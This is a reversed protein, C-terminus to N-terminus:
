GDEDKQDKIVDYQKKIREYIGTDKNKLYNTPLSKGKNRTPASTAALDILDTVIGLFVAERLAAKHPMQFTISFTNRSDAFWDGDRDDIACECSYGIDYFLVRYHEGTLFRRLHRAKQSRLSGRHVGMGRLNGVVDRKTYAYAAGDAELVLCIWDKYRGEFYSEYKPRKSKLEELKQISAASRAFIEVDGQTYNYPTKMIERVEEGLVLSDYMADVLTDFEPKKPDFNPLQKLIERLQSRTIM